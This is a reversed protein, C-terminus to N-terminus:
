VIEIVDVTNFRKLIDNYADIAMHCAKVIYEGRANNQSHPIVESFPFVAVYKKLYDCTARYFEYAEDAEDLITPKRSTKLREIEAQDASRRSVLDANEKKLAAVQNEMKKSSAKLTEYDAPVVERTVERIEPKRAKLKENEAALQKARNIYFDIERQNVKEKGALDRALKEQEENSLRKVISRVASPSIVKDQLLQQIEPVATTLQKYRNLSDVSIGIKAALDAQTITSGEAVQPVRGTHQNNGNKIGYLRELELICRGFKVPNLNGIGRQILNTEILQKLIEDESDYHGVKCEVEKIGLEKCARVRQHGSVIINDQTVVIPEIVGSTRVSNLFRKWSEGTIDDFFYDNRPHPKLEDISKTVRM